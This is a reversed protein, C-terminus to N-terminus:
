DPAVTEKFLSPPTLLHSHIALLFVRSVKVWNRGLIRGRGCNDTIEQQTLYSIFVCFVKYQRRVLGIETRTSYEKCM